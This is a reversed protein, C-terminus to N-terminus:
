SGFMQLNYSQYSQMIAQQSNLLSLSKQLETYQRRLSEERIALRAEYNKIRTDISSIQRKIGQKSRDVRGGANVFNDLLDTMKNGIGEDASFLQIVQDINNEVADEFKDSDGISITGERSMEIGIQSLLKYNEADLGEVSNFLMSRMSFKLSSFVVDGALDGRAYTTTDVKTKENLYKIADNFKTIFDDIEARVNETDNEIKFSTPTDDTDNVQLLKITVGELIDDIENTSKIIDVGDFNIKADLDAVDQSVFGGATGETLRRDGGSTLYKLKRLINSGGVETMNLFGESGLKESKIILRATSSTDDIVSASVDLDAANVADAVKNMVMDHTDDDEITISITVADGDGVALTFEQLGKAYAWTTDRELQRSIGTDATALRDVKVTHSGLQASSAADVSFFTSISLTANKQNLTNLSGTRTFDKSKDRLHTLHSKLDTFVLQRRDLEKKQAELDDVPQREKSLTMQILTEISNAGSNISSVDM